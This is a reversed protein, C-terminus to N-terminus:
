LRAPPMHLAPCIPVCAALPRVQRQPAFCRRILDCVYSAITLRRLESPANPQICALLHDVRQQVVSATVAAVSHAPALGAEPGAMTDEVVM